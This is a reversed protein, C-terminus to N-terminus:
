GLASPFATIDHCRGLDRMPCTPPNPPAPPQGIEGDNAAERGEWCHAHNSDSEDHCNCWGAHGSLKKWTTTPAQCPDVEENAQDDTGTRPRNDIGARISNEVLNM